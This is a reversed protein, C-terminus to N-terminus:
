QEKERRALVFLRHKDAAIKVPLAKLLKCLSDRVASVWAAAAEGGAGEPQPSAGRALVLVHADNSPQMALVLAHLLASGAVLCPNPQVGGGAQAAAFRVAAVRVAPGGPGLEAITRAVVNAAPAFELVGRNNTPAGEPLLLLPGGGGRTERLVFEAAALTTSAADDSSTPRGSAGSHLSAAAAASAAGLADLLSAPRLGAGGRTLLAFRPALTAALALVGVYGSSNAVVVEGGRPAPATSTLAFRHFGLLFLASRALPRVLALRAARAARPWCGALLVDALADALLLLPLVVLLLPPLRLLLLLAGLARRAPTPRWPQTTFPNVGVTADVFAQFREAM